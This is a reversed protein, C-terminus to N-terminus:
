NALFTNVGNHTSAATGNPVSIGWLIDRYFPSTSTPKSVNLNFSQTSSSLSNCFVCSTYTFTTTAYKQYSVAITSSGNTLDTGSLLLNLLANGTNNVSTSANSSGTDAGVTVSGYNISSPVSLGRLTYVDQTSSATTHTGSSDWIDVFADWIQSAYTSGADTPDAFYQMNATCSLTCSNGSCLTLACTSTSIQYCDNQDATCYRAGAVGSRYFTSSAATIDTYGNLDSVTGTAYIITGTGETLAITSNNNFAWNSITPAYLPQLEAVKSYNDLPTSGNVTRFCYAAQNAFATMQFNYEVETVENTSLSMNGTQNSPDELAQGQAFTFGTAVSLLQTTSAQDIIQSSATMCAAASGCGGSTTPVNTYNGTVVSECNPASLKPAVQLQYHQASIPTGSNKVTLRLRVNQSVPQNTLTTDEAVKWSAGSDQQEIGFQATPQSTYYTAATPIDWGGHQGWFTFGVGGTSYTNDTYTTSAFFTGTSDYVTVDIRGSSLWDVVTQYWGTSWTVSTTALETAGGNRYNYAVNKSISIKDQGPLEFCVGYNQHLTVPSQVAFMFCSEDNAPSATNVYQYYRFKTGRGIGASAQAIGSSNQATTNGASAALGYSREYNYSTSNEFLSTDGSYETLNNDEFDDFFQFTSTGSGSSNASGNGYYMFVDATGSAPLSPLKVWVTSSASNIYEQVWHQITTTGGSDTFRLDNFNAQMDADYQVNLKVQVNTLTTTGTNPCKQHASKKQSPNYLTV